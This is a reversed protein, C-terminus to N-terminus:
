GTSRTADQEGYFVVRDRGAKKAQYLADDAKKLFTETTEGRGPVGVVVGLSITVAMEQNEYTVRMKRVESHIMEAIQRTDDKEVNIMLVVFEEGGYRAIFDTERKVIHGLLRAIQKLFLDGAPHGYTDNIRKFHDIDCIILSISTGSREAAKWGKNFIEDLYRRNYLGTLGDIRSIKRIEENKLWLLHENELAHWYERNGRSAIITMYLAYLLILCVLPLNIGLVNMVIVAPLLMLINYTVAIYWAPNFAVVAGATLGVTSTVMIVNSATEEPHAMYYAFSLGWIMATACVSIYFARTSLKRNLRNLRNFFYFQGLRFVSILLMAVLFIISFKVHRKYFGDVTLVVVTGVIYFYMGPMSRYALDELVRRNIKYRQFDRNGDEM